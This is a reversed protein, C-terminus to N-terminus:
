AELPTFTEEAGALVFENPDTMSLEWQRTNYVGLTWKQVIAEVDGDVGLSFTLPQSFSGLNDRYRLTCVPATTASAASGRRM